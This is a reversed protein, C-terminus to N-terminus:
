RRLYGSRKMDLKILKGRLKAFGVGSNIYLVYVTYYELTAIGSHVNYLFNNCHPLFTLTKQM